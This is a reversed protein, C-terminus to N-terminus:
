GFRSNTSWTFREAVEADGLGEVEPSRESRLTHLRPAETLCETASQSFPLVRSTVIGPLGGRAM